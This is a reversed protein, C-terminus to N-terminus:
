KKKKEKRKKNNAMPGRPSLVSDDQFERVRLSRAVGRAERWSFCVVVCAPGVSAGATGM